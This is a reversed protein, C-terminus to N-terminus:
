SQRNITILNHLLSEADMSTTGSDNKIVLQTWIWSSSTLVHVM